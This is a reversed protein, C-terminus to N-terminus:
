RNRLRQQLEVIMNSLEDSSRQLLDNESSVEEDLLEQLLQIKGALIGLQKGQERGEERADDVAAEAVKAADEAAKAADEAAKIADEAAKAAEQAAKLRTAEDRLFKMRAEYYYRDEPSKSIMELVGAAELFEDDVLQEALEEADLFEAHQLFYLWKELPPLVNVNDGSPDFKPLELTHFLLDDSFILDDEQDCRLRFSLHFRDSERFLVCDLVYIGIAPRLQDYPEGEGLQQAYNICNYFTLRKALHSPRSTQMEINYRRGKRDKALVDLVILKDEAREKGQLPNLIQVSTIPESFQLVANLFHITIRTHDPSGFVLKFAFDVKPDIGLPM